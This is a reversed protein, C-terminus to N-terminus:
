KNKAKIKELLASTEKYDEPTLKEGKAKEIAQNAIKEAEKYNETKFLLAAYTDLYMYINSIECARQSMKLASALQNKDSVQTYFDWAVNNLANANNNNYKLFDKSILEYYKGKDTRDYAMLDADFIIKDTNPWNLNRFDKKASEFESTNFNMARTFKNFYSKGMAAIKEEITDKGFRTEFEKYNAILYKLERSENNYIHDRMVIWNVRKKLDEDKVTKIYENVKETPDLCTGTLLDVYELVNSENLPNKELLTKRYTYTLEPKLSLKGLAIFDSATRSGATRHVVNENGDLYMLNPYCHVDYKKAFELGEGKEMDLKLNVFTSNYYDAVSDNTFVSKAMQKCPGCWVTFADVFILKKEKKAKEFVSALNGTEFNIHKNQANVVYTVLVCAALINRKM